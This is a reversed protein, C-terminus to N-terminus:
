SRLWRIDSSTEEGGVHKSRAAAAQLEDSSRWGSLRRIVYTNMEGVKTQGASTIPSAGIRTSAPNSVAFPASAV